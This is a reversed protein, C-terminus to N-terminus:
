KKRLGIRVEFGQPSLNHAEVTGGCTEVCSKVISLGLGTGGTERARDSELRYFPDFIKEIEGEPVGPGNDFVTM